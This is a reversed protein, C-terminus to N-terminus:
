EAFIADELYERRLEDVLYRFEMWDHVVADFM